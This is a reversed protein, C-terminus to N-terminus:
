SKREKSRGPEGPPTDNLLMELFPTAAGLRAGSDLWDRLMRVGGDSCTGLGRLDLVVEGQVSNRVRRLERLDLDTLQGAITLLTRAEDM